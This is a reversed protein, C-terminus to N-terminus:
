ENPGVGGGGALHEPIVPDVSDVSTLASLNRDTSTPEAEIEQERFLVAYDALGLAQYPWLAGIHWRFRPVTPGCLRLCHLIQHWDKAKVADALQRQEVTTIQEALKRGNPPPEGKRRIWNLDSAMGSLSRRQVDDLTAWLEDIRDELATM